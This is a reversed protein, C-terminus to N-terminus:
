SDFTTSWSYTYPNHNLNHTRNKPQTVQWMSLVRKEFAAASLGKRVWQMLLNGLLFAAQNIDDTSIVHVAATWLMEECDIDNLTKTHEYTVELYLLMLSTFTWSISQNQTKTDADLGHKWATHYQSSSSLLAAAASPCGLDGTRGILRLLQQPLLAAQQEIMSRDDSTTSSSKQQALKPTPMDRLTSDADVLSLARFACDLARKVAVVLSSSDMEVRDIPSSTEDDCISLLEQIATVLVKDATKESGKSDHINNTNTNTNANSSLSADDLGSLAFLMPFSSLSRPLGVRHIDHDISEFCGVMRLLVLKCVMLLTTTSSSNHVDAPTTDLHPLHVCIHRLAGCCQPKSLRPIIAWLERQFNLLSSRSSFFLSLQDDISLRSLVVGGSGSGGGEAGTHDNDVLRSHCADYRQKQINVMARIASAEDTDHGELAVTPVVFVSSETAVVVARSNDDGHLIPTLKVIRSANHPQTGLSLCRALRLGENGIHCIYLKGELIENTEVLNAKDIASGGNTMVEPRRNLGTSRHDNNDTHIQTHSIINTAIVLAEGSFVVQEIREIVRTAGHHRDELHLLWHLDVAACPCLPLPHPPLAVTGKGIATSHTAGKTVNSNDRSTITDSLTPQSYFFLTGDMRDVAMIVASRQDIISKTETRNFVRVIGKEDSNGHALLQLAAFPHTSPVFFPLCGDRTGEKTHGGISWRTLVHFVSGIAAEVVELQRQMRNAKKRGKAGTHLFQLAWLDVFIGHARSRKTLNEEEEDEDSESECERWIAAEEEEEEEGEEEKEEIVVAKDDNLTGDAKLQTLARENTESSITEQIVERQPAAAAMCYFYLGQDTQLYVFDNEESVYVNNIDNNAVRVLKWQAHSTSVTEQLLLNGFSCGVFFTSKATMCLPICGKQEETMIRLDEANTALLVTQDADLEGKMMADRLLPDNSPPLTSSQSQSFWQRGPSALFRTLDLVILIGGYTLVHVVLLKNSTQILQASVVRDLTDNPLHLTLPSSTKGENINHIILRSGTFTCCIISSTGDDHSVCLATVENIAM